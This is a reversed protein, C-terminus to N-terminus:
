KVPVDKKNQLNSNMRRNKGSGILAERGVRSRVQSDKRLELFSVYQFRHKHM